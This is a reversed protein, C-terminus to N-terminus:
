TFLESIIEFIFYFGPINIKLVVYLSVHECPELVQKDHSQSLKHASSGIHFILYRTLKSYVTKAWTKSQKIFVKIDIIHRIDTFCCHGILLSM